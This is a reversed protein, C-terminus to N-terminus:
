RIYVIDSVSRERSHRGSSPTNIIEGQYVMTSSGGGDLNYATAVGLNKMFDALEYLSLGESDSTRGDSVVFIYHNPEIMGIATRPNSAMAMGVEDNTDVLIEGDELLGPGFSFVQWAGNDLLEQASKEQPAVIEMRGDTYICLVDANSPTDRYLIGNRIVYGRERAGYFDGNIALLADNETATDSTTATIKRGYTDQAFATKLSEVSPLLIDAVYVNTDNVRCTSIEIQPEAPTIASDKPTAEEQTTQSAAPQNDTTSESDAITAEAAPESDTINERESMSQIQSSETLSVNKQYVNPIVFADLLLYTTLGTLAIAYGISWKNIKM